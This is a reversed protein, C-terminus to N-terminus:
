RSGGNPPGNTWMEMASTWSKQWMDAAQMWFEMPNGTPMSGMSPFANSTFPNDTMQMGPWQQMNKMFEAPNMMAQPNNIQQQWTDMIQDLMHLQIKSAQQMQQRTADVLNDTEFLEAAPVDIEILMSPVVKVCVAAVAVEVCFAVARVAKIVALALNVAVDVLLTIVTVLVAVM